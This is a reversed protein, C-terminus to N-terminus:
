YFYAIASMTQNRITFTKYFTRSIPDIVKLNGDASATVVINKVIRQIARIHSSHLQNITMPLTCGAKQYDIFQLEGNDGGRLLFDGSLLEISEGNCVNFQKLPRVWVNAAGWVKVQNHHSVVVEEEIGQKMQYLRVSRICIQRICRCQDIDWIQLNGMREGVVIETNSMRIIGRISQTHGKLTQSFSFSGSEKRWIILSKDWSGSVIVEERVYCLATVSDTHKSLTSILTRNKIDWIKINKDVSGSALIKNPLACLCVICNNHGFLSGMHELSNSFLDIRESNGGAAFIPYKKYKFIPPINRNRLYSIIQPIRRLYNPQPPDLDIIEAMSFNNM